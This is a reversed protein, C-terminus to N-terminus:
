FGSKSKDGNDGAKDAEIANLIFKMKGEESMSRGLHIVAHGFEKGASEYASEAESEQSSDETEAKRAKTEEKKKKLCNWSIHGQKDCEIDGIVWESIPYPIRAKNRSNM